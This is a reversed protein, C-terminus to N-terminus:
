RTGGIIALIEHRKMFRKVQRLTMNRKVKHNDYVVEYLMKKM